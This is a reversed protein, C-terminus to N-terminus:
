AARSDSCGIWLYEPAQERELRRFFDADSSVMRDAWARNNSKLHDLMPAGTARLIALPLNSFQREILRDLEPGPRSRGAYQHQFVSRHAGVSFERPCQSLRGRFRGDEALGPRAAREGIYGSPEREVGRFRPSPTRRERCPRNARRPKASRCHAESGYRHPLVSLRLCLQRALARRSPERADM